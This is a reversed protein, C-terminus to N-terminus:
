YNSLRDFLLGTIERNKEELEKKERKEQELLWQKEEAIEKKSKLESILSNIDTKYKFSLKRNCIERIILKLTRASDKIRTELVVTEARLEEMEKSLVEVRCSKENLQCDLAKLSEIIATIEKKDSVFLINDEDHCKKEGTEDIKISVNCLVFKLNQTMAESNLEYDGGVKTIEGDQECFLQNLLEPESAIAEALAPTVLEPMNVTKM